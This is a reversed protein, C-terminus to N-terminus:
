DGAGLDESHLRGILETEATEHRALQGLLERARVRPDDGGATRAQSYSLITERIVALTSLIQDHEAQLAALRDAARPFERALEEFLGSDQERRFHVALNERLDQLQKALRNRWTRAKQSGPKPVPGELFRQLGPITERLERHEQVVQDLIREDGPWGRVEESVRVKEGTDADYLTIAERQCKQAAALIQEPPDGEPDTVVAKGEDDVYFTGPAEEGCQKDGICTDRDIHIRYRAM